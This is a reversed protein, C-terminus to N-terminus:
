RKLCQGKPHFIKCHTQRPLKSPHPGETLTGKKTGTPLTNSKKILDIEKIIIVTKRVISKDVVITVGKGFKMKGCRKVEGKEGLKRHLRPYFYHAIVM